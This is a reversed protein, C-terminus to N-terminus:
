FLLWSQLDFSFISLYFLPFIFLFVFINNANSTCVNLENGVFHCKINLVNVRLAILTLMKMPCRIAANFVEDAMAIAGFYLSMEVFVICRILYFIVNNQHSNNQWRHVCVCVCVNVAITPLLQMAHTHCSNSIIALLIYCTDFGHVYRQWNRQNYYALYSCHVRFQKSMQVKDCLFFKMLSSLFSHSNTPCYPWLESIGFIFLLLNM